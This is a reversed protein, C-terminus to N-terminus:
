RKENLAQALYEANGYPEGDFEDGNKEGGEPVSWGGQEVLKAQM